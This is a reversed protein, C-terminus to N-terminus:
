GSTSGSKSLHNQLISILYGLIATAALGIWALWPFAISIGHSPAYFQVWSLVALGGMGGLWLGAQTTRPHLALLFWGLMLGATFGTIRMANRVMNDQWSSAWVGIAIQLLGFFLILWKSAALYRAEVRSKEAADVGLRKQIQCLDSIVATASANLSSSLTSMAAALISALMLGILGTNKPFDHFIFHSFVADPKLSQVETNGRYFSALALGIALFLFFQFFVVLGSVALARQAEQLSKAGLYRQVMLQDVGHSGLTLLGGGLLGAWFTYPDSWDFHFRLWELKGEAGAQNWITSVGGPIHIALYFLTAVGGLLYILLQVCDNWVVSRMGGMLTYVITFLGMALICSNLSWGLWTHLVIAALFLRLGDGLNRAVLFLLSAGKQASPGFRNGLVQYASYLRGQFFMPMLLTCVLLRGVIYGLPLQLFKLGTAGYAEGPISLVTVTSTETAVISGLIAWWPLNRGGVLYADLSKASGREAWGIGLTVFAAVALLLWDLLGLAGVM